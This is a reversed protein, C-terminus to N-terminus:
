RQRIGKLESAVEDQLKPIKGHYEKLCGDVCSAMQEQM